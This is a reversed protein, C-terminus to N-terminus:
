VKSVPEIGTPVVNRFILDPGIIVGVYDLELGQCTHICGVQSVSDPEIIWTGGHETLNWDAKYKFEPFTIDPQNRDARSVWNWCYGAVMRSKNTEANKERIIDHLKSPDDFVQFDYRGTSFYSAEDNRIGLTDDLWVLYDDSGGCRFQSNLTFHQVEAGSARAFGEITEIDGIDKWTVQQAEDIFFVSARSAAIIEKIQNVRM